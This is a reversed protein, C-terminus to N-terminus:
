FLRKLDNREQSLALRVQFACEALDGIDTFVGSCLGLFLM